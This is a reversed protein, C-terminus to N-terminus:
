KNILFLCIKRSESDMREMEPSWLGNQKLNAKLASYDASSHLVTACTAAYESVPQCLRLMEHIPSTLKNRNRANQNNKYKEYKEQIAMLLEEISNGIEFRTDVMKREGNNLELVDITTKGIDGKPKYRYNQLYLHDRPDDVFPNVIPEAIVDHDSKHGNCHKCSPLLNDWVMVKDANHHKDEFHEVEMYNSEKTLDCECYACKGHSLEMLGEKLWDINWVSKGTRKYEETKAQVFDPTLKAPPNLRTLKIM